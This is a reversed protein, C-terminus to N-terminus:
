SFPHRPEDDVLLLNGQALLGFARREAPRIAPDRKEEQGFAQLVKENGMSEDIMATEDGRAKAQLAFMRHTRLAIFRAVFLSLPTILLVELAIWM